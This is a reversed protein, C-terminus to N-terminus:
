LKVTKPDSLSLLHTDLFSCTSSNRVTCATDAQRDIQSAVQQINEYNGFSDKGTNLRKFAHLNRM